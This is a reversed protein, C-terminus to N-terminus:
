DKLNIWKTKSGDMKGNWLWKGDLRCLQLASDAAAIAPSIWPLIKNPTTNGIGLQPKPLLYARCLINFNVRPLNWKKRNQDNIM